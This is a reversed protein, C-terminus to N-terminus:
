GGRDRQLLWSALLHDAQQMAGKRIASTPLYPDGEDIRKMWWQYWFGTADAAACVLVLVIFPWPFELGAIVTLGAYSTVWLTLPVFEASLLLLVSSVSWWSQSRIGFVIMALMTLPRVCLYIAHATSWWRSRVMGYPTGASENNPMLKRMVSTVAASRLDPTREKLEALTPVAPPRLPEAHMAPGEYAIGCRTAAWRLRDTSIGASRLPQVRVAYTEAMEGLLRLGVAGDDSDGRWLPVRAIVALVDPGAEPPGLVVRTEAPVSLESVLRVPDILLAELVRSVAEDATSLLGIALDALDIQHANRGVAVAQGAALADAVMGAVTSGGWDPALVVTM